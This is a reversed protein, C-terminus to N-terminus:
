SDAGSLPKWLISHIPASSQQSVYKLPALLFCFIDSTKENAQAVTLFTYFVIIM